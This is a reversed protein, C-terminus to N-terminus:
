YNYPDVSGTLWLEIFQPLVQTLFVFMFVFLFGKSFRVFASDKPPENLPKTMRM